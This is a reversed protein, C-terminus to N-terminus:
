CSKLENYASIIGFASSIVEIDISDSTFHLNLNDFSTISLVRISILFSVSILIFSVFFFFNYIIKFLNEFRFDSSGVEKYGNSCPLPTENNVQVLRCMVQVLRCMVQVLRCMVQVLRCVAQVYGSPLGHRPTVHQQFAAQGRVESRRLM